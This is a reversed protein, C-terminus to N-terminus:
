YTSFSSSIEIPVTVNGDASKPWRYAKDILGTHLIMSSEEAADPFMEREQVASLKIDGQFHEGYELRVEPNVTDNSIDEHSNHLETADSNTLTKSQVFVLFLSFRIVFYIGSMKVKFQSRTGM